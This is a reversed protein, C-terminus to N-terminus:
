VKREAREALQTLLPVVMLLTERDAAVLLREFVARARDQLMASTDPTETLPLLDTRM